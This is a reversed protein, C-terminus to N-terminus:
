SNLSGRDEASAAQDQTTRLEVDAPPQTAIAPSTLRAASHRVQFEVVFLKAAMRTIIGFFVQNCQAGIAM